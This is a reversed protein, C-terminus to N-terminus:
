NERAPAAKGKPKGNGHDANRNSGQTSVDTASAPQDSVPPLPAVPQVASTRREVRQLGHGQNGQHKGVNSQGMPTAQDSVHREHAMVAPAEVRPVAVKVRRHSDTVSKPERVKPVPTASATPAVRAATQHAPAAVQAAVHVAPQVKPVNA